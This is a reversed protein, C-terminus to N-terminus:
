DGGREITRLGEGDVVWQEGFAPARKHIFADLGERLDDTTYITRMWRIVDETSERIRTLTLSKIARVPAYARGAFTNAVSLARELLHERAVVEDVLGLGCADRAPLAAGTLMLQRAHRVGILSTALAVAGGGPFGGLLAEPFGLQARESAFRWDAMLALECGGGLAYRDIAALLPKSFACVSECFAMEHAAMEAAMDADRLALSERLDAGASFGMGEKSTLVVAHVAGDREARRLADVIAQRLARSLANVPPRNLRLVYVSGVAEGEVLNSPEHRERPAM